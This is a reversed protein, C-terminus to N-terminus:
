QDEEESRDFIFAVWQLSFFVHLKLYLNVFLYVESTLPSLYMFHTLTKDKALSM